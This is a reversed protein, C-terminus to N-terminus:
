KENQVAKLKAYTNQLRQAIIKTLNYLIKSGIIPKRKLLSMLDPKFFGLISCDTTAIAAASRPKEDLITMEGFFDGEKMEALVLKSNNKDELQINVKGKQVIYMGVGLANQQFIYEDKKYFRNHILKKVEKIEATQLNYFIPINKLTNLTQKEESQNWNRFLNEWIPNKM